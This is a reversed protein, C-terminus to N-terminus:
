QIKVWSGCSPIGAHVVFLLYYGPPAIEPTSPGVATLSYSDPTLRSVEVLKLVVMRQNMALSHTTFSPAVIRVSLKSESLYLPVFFTLTFPQGLKLIEDVSLILPQFPKHEMSLYPPSFAELSLDTPYEVDTFNYYRHPNSGGVLVRGDALLIATSHYLRPRPSASMVSFRWDPSGDPKYIVPRTVPSQGLEWGATGREVGNIIIVDGNALLLMDGMVRAIPMNEMVWSPNEDSVKLRGCSSSARVFNGQSAEAFAGRPAGGCIMIEAEIARNEDIPLLVSSGSSPYNRPDSVPIPPFEKVVTNRNYDLSISRTNAFIFLNGDPLLHVFPYLNNENEDRTEQLFQLWFSGSSASYPDGNKPYLEYNFERRGGIIIIRGDPLIQNTAYWRRRSLYVPYEVWDCSDDDCPTFVRVAHDGDNFGGTQVLSGNPSVAGSSCWTDTQVTLPRFSNTEVDYLVSHATCDVKLATDNSDYRCRGGPLSLNSPGFDTRDFAVVRNDHLLQMHMASVGISPQLLRWEGKRGHHLPLVESRIIFPHFILLSFLSILLFLNSM